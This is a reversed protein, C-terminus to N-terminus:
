KAGAAELMSVIELYPKREDTTLPKHIVHGSDDVDIKGKALVENAKTLPTKHSLADKEDVDAGKAILIRAIEVNGKLAACWLPSGEMETQQNVDAGQSLLLLVVDVHNGGVAEILATTGRGVGNVDVGQDLLARVGDTDGMVALDVLRDERDGAKANPQFLFCLLFALPIYLSFRRMFTEMGLIETKGGPQSGFICGNAEARSREQM